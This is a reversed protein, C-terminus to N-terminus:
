YVLNQAILIVIPLSIISLLTCITFVNSARELDGGFRSSFLMAISATPCATAIIIATRLTNDLPLLAFVALVAFPVIFLKLIAIYYVKPRKIALLLNSQAIYVGSVIMALPTNMSAIYETTKAVPSPLKLGIFYMSLGLIICIMTPTIFPKILERFTRKGQKDKQNRMLVVGYTWAFINFMTLYTNIYFVGLKGFIASILPIAMFGCNTFIVCFRETALSEKKAKIRLINSTLIGALISIFSLGFGLLMNRAEARNYDMQYTDLIMAPTVVYLVISTLQQNTHDSILKIKYLIFGVLILLFMITVQNILIRAYEM